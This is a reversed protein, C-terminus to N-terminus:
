TVPLLKSEGLKDEVTKDLHKYKRTVTPGFSVERDEIEGSSGEQRRNEAREDENSNESGSEQQGRKDAM